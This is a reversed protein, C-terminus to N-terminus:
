IEECFTCVNKYTAETEKIASIAPASIKEPKEVHMTKTKTKTVNIQMDADAESGAQISRLRETLLDVSTSAIAADDAYGLVGVHLYNGVTMGAPSPDHVRFIQEM